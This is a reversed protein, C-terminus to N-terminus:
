QNKPLGCMECNDSAENHYTCYSCAWPENPAPRKQSGSPTPDVDMMDSENMIMSLTKWSGSHTLQQVQDEQHHVACECAMKLTDENLVHLSSLHLLFHFDSIGSGLKQANLHQKVKDM